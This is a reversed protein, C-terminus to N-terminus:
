CGAFWLALYDFIDQVTIGGTGNYELRDYDAPLGSSWQVNRQEGGAMTDSGAGGFFVDNGLGGLLTDNGDEGFVQTMGLKKGLLAKM